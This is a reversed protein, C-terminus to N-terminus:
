KIIVESSPHAEIFELKHQERYKYHRFINIFSKRQDEVDDITLIKYSKEKTTNNSVM